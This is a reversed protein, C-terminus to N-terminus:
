AQVEVYEIAQLKSIRDLIANERQQNEARVEKLQQRLVELEKAAAENEDILVVAVDAYGVEVWGSNTMDHSCFFLEGIGEAPDNEIRNKIDRMTRWQPSSNWVKLRATVPTESM